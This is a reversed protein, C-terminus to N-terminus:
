SWWATRRRCIQLLRSRRRGPSVSQWPSLVDRQEVGPRHGQVVTTGIAATPMLFVFPEPCNVPTSAGNVFTSSIYIPVHRRQNEVVIRSEGGLAVNGAVAPTQRHPLRARPMPDTAVLLMRVGGQPQM